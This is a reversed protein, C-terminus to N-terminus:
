ERHSKRELRDLEDLPDPHDDVRLYLAPWEDEGAIILAASQRGRRDGGAAEGAIMADILRRPFPLASSRIYAEFADDVVRQSALM